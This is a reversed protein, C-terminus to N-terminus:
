SIGFHQLPGESSSWKEEKLDPPSFFSKLRKKFFRAQIKRTTKDM